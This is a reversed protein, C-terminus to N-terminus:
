LSTCLNFLRHTKRQMDKYPKLEEKFIDRLMLAVLLPYISTQPAEKKDFQPVFQFNVRVGEETNADKRVKPEHVGKYFYIASRINRHVYNCLHGYLSKVKADDKAFAYDFLHIGALKIRKGHIWRIAEENDTSLYQCLGISELLSRVIIASDYYYGRTALLRISQMSQMISPLIILTTDKGKSSIIESERSKAICDFTEMCLDFCHEYLKSDQKFKKLTIRLTEEEKVAFHKYPTSNTLRIVQYYHGKEALITETNQTNSHSRSALTIRHNLM